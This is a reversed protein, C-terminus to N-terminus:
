WSARHAGRHVPLGVSMTLRAITHQRQRARDLVIIPYRVDSVGVQELAIGRADPQSQIDHMM